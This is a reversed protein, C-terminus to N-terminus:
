KSEAKREPAPAPPKAFRADNVPVNQKLESLQITFRGGPRALTWRYPVEVNGVERYDAYDIQTPLRGLATEAYRVLRVLLGSNEDFYLHLPTKEARECSVFYTDHDTIKEVGRLETKGCMQQLHVAFQLDADMSAGDIDPGHMERVPHNPAALWGEHGNFATVSDGDPTHVFSSRQDPTKSYIDIPIMRDGFTITGKMIRTTVKDIAASGGAAQLYKEFLENVTPGGVIHTGATEGRNEEAPGHVNAAIETEQMVPPTAVPDTSGRHCSYCTVERHNEFNDKNIAFMMEMMKRAAVKPKKDDKDFADQVHCFECEVGLSASIFQMSPILQDAPIDKLVQINKFQQAATKPAAAATQPPAGAQAKASGIIVAGIVFFIITSANRAASSRM